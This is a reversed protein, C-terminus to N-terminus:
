EVKIAKWRVTKNGKGKMEFYYIGPLLKRCDIRETFNTIHINQVQLGQSNYIKLDTFSGSYGESFKVMLESSFPNPFVLVSPSTDSFNISLIKPVNITDSESCNKSDKVTLTYNGSNLGSIDETVAGNSWSYTYPATGGTVTVNIAGDGSQKVSDVVFSIVMPEPSDVEAIKATKCGKADTVTLFYSGASVGTISSATTGNSWSYTYPLVGGTAIASAKGDSSYSCNTSTTTISVTAAGPDSLATSETKECGNVDTVTMSFIGTTLGSLSNTIAGTNWSYTYPSVGGSVLSTVTGDSVGCATPNAPTLTVLLKEPETVTISSTVTCANADTVTVDYSGSVLNNNVSTTIGNSWNYSYPVSGGTITATASGTASGNCLVNASSNSLTLIAPETITISSSATCANADTVTMQYTGAVLDSLTNLTIGTNWNYSYPSTGGSLVATASGTSGGNCLVNSSSFSLALTTPESVLASDMGKCGKSDTITLAYVGGSINTQSTGTNGNSWKYGYPANGGTIITSISGSNDGNCALSVTTFDFVFTAPASVNANVSAKCGKSDTVVLNYNGGTSINGLNQVTSGGTWLFTFPPTGGSVTANIGGDSLGPCSVNTVSLAVTPSGPDSISVTAVKSCSNADTVTVMYAGASLSSITLTNAGNSWAIQYAPNGGSITATASGDSVGCSSPNTGVANLVLSIPETITATATESCGNFDTVTCQYNGASLNNIFDDTVGNSWSYSYPTVGGTVTLNATGSNTGFCAINVTNVTAMVKAPETIVATKTNTCGKSDTVTVTYNGSSLTGITVSSSSNSWLYSYPMNGGIVEATITGSNTGSCTIDSSNLNVTLLDPETLITSNSQNCGNADNVTVSYTGPTLNIIKVANAGNSWLFSYSATGGTIIAVIEGKNEGACKTETKELTIVIQAPSVVDVSKVVKCGGADTVTLLYNGGTIGTLNQTLLGTSWSYSYPPTGGTTTTSIAGDTSGFCSVNITSLTVTQAGPDSISANATKTCANVDTVTVVYAGSSLGTISKSVAGTNWLYTYPPIGGTVNVSALGDSTGCSSTNFQTIALVLAPPEAINGESVVTCGKSDTITCTYLGASLNNIDENIQGGSWQYNYPANGGNVSLDIAGTANGACFIDITIIQTSISNTGQIDSSSTSSCNKSDTVTLQYTGDALANIQQTNGGNSWQYSYPPNGGSVTAQVSGDNLGPCSPNVPTLSLSIPLPQTITVSGTTNCSKNDTVTVDYSGAVLNANTATTVGNSWNYSYPLTGGIATVTANGNMDGNCLVNTSSVTLTISSPNTVTFTKQNKCGNSETVTVTYNGSLLNTITATLSGNNWSYSYPTVGGSGLVTIQGDNAGSCTPVTVSGNVTVATVEIYNTQILTDSGNANIAILTVNYMGATAYTVVPDKLTSTSPSGGPFTWKYSTPNNSSTNTFTVDDGTCIKTNSSTFDAVPPPPLNGEYCQVDDVVMYETASSQTGGYGHFGFYYIGTATPTIEYSGTVPGSNANLPSIVAIYTTMASPNQANGFYVDLSFNGAASEQYIFNFNYKTGGTLNICNSFIWDDTTATNSGLIGLMSNGGLDGRFWTRTDGDTDEIYWGDLASVSTFDNFLTDGSDTLYDKVVIEATDNSANGDGTLKSFATITYQSLTSLNAKTSFSYSNPINPLVTFGGVNEVVPTNGNISYAVEFGTISQTGLNSITISVTESSSLNCGSVPSDVSVVTADLTSSEVVEVDDVFWYYDYDGTWSFKIYVTSQNGASASIDFDQSLPNLTGENQGLGTHVEHYLTWNTGDNSVYVRGTSAAYQRFYENFKLRVFSSASCNISPTILEAEEGGISANSGDSDFMVYGNGSTSNTSGPDLEGPASGKSPGTNWEWVKGTGKIDINQWTGPISGGSFDESFLTAEVKSSSVFDKSKILRSGTANNYIASTRNKTLTVSNIKEQASTESCVFLLLLLRTILKINKMNKNIQLHLTPFFISNKNNTKSNM